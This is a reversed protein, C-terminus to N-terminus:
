GPFGPHERPDLDEPVYKHRWLVLQELGDLDLPGAALMAGVEAPTLGSLICVGLLPTTLGLTSWEYSRYRRLPDPYGTREALAREVRLARHVHAVGDPSYGRTRWVTAIEPNDTVRWWDAAAYLDWEAAEWLRAVAAVRREQDLTHPERHRPLLVFGAEVWERAVHPNWGESAWALCIDDISYTDATNDPEM